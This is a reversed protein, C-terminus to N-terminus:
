MNFNSWIETETESEAGFSYIKVSEAYNRNRDFTATISETVNRNQCGHHRIEAPV